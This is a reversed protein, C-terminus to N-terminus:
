TTWGLDVVYQEWTTGTPSTSDAELAAWCEDTFSVTYRFENSTGSYNYLCGIIRKMSEPSLPSYQFSISAGITGNINVDTLAYCKNFASNYVCSKDVTVGGFSQLSECTNCINQINTQAVGSLDPTRLLKKAYYFAYYLGTPSGNSAYSVNIGREIETISSEYFAYALNTAKIDYKPKYMEDAWGRFRYRYDDRTGNLQMEDWFDSWEQTRGAEFVKQENEAITTLKDAISM